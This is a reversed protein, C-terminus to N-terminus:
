AVNEAATAVMWLGGKEGKRWHIKKIAFLFRFHYVEMKCGSSSIAHPISREPEQRVTQTLNFAPIWIGHEMSSPLFLVNSIAALMRAAPRSDCYSPPARTGAVMQAMESAIRHASSIM